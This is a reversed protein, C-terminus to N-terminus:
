VQVGRMGRGAFLRTGRTATRPEQRATPLATDLHLCSPFSYLSAPHTLTSTLSPRTSGGRSSSGVTVAGHLEVRWPAAFALCVENYYEVVPKGDTFQRLQYDSM